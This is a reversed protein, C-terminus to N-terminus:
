VLTTKLPQMNYGAQFLEMRIVNGVAQAAITLTYEGPATEVSAVTVALATTENFVKAPTVGGDVSFWSSVVGEIPKKFGVGGFLSHLKILITTTGTNSVNFGVVEIPQLAFWNKAPYAIKSTDIYDRNADNELEDIMMSCMIKQVVGKVPPTYQATLTEKQLKISVLNGLGDNMANLQGTFTVFIVGLEECKISDYCAKLAPNAEAGFHEWTIPAKLEEGTPIPKGGIDETEATPAPSVLNEFQPFVTWRVTPDVHNLKAEVYAKNIVTGNPIGNLAGTSDTYHMFIPFKDRRVQPMCGTQGPNLAGGACQCEIEYLM